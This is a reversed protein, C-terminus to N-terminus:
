VCCIEFVDCSYILFLCMGSINKFQELVNGYLKHREGQQIARLADKSTRLSNPFWKRCVEVVDDSAMGFSQVNSICETCNIDIYYQM